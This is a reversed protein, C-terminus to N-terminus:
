KSVQVLRGAAAVGVIKERCRGEIHWSCCGPFSSGFAIAGDVNDGGCGGAKNRKTQHGQGTLEVAM